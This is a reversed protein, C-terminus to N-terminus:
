KKERVQQSKLKGAWIDALSVAIYKVRIGKYAIHNLEDRYHQLTAGQRYIVMVVPMEELDWSQWLGPYADVALHEYKTIKNEVHMRANNNHYEVLYACSFTGDLENKIILGDPAVIGKKAEDDWLTLARQGRVFVRHPDEAGREVALKNWSTQMM